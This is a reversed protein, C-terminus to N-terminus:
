KDLFGFLAYTGPNVMACANLVGETSPIYTKDTKVKVWQAGKLQRIEAAWGNDGQKFPHCIRTYESVEVGRSFIKLWAPPAAAFSFDINIETGKDWVGEGSVANDTFETVAVPTPEAIPYWAFLAYVGNSPAQVCAMYIMEDPKYIVTTESNNIKNWRYNYWQRFEPIWGYKAGDFSHCIKASQDIELSNTILQLHNPQGGSRAKVEAALITNPYEWYGKDGGALISGPNASVLHGVNAFTIGLLVLVAVLKVLISKKM